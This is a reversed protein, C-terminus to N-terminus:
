DPYEIQILYQERMIQYQEEKITRRMDFTWEREVQDWIETLEPVYGDTRKIVKVLHIGYASEVPGQWTGSELEFIRSTFKTGFVAEVERQRKSELQDPVFTMGAEFQDPTISGEQLGKILQEAHDSEEPSLYIHRFSIIPDQMFKDPHRTLYERLQEESPYVIAYEDLVLEMLQRLRRKVAPDTKDLGRAVAERFFVEDMIYNDIQAQLEVKNPVRSWTKTFSEALLDVQGTAVIIKRNERDFYATIGTYLLYLLFGFLFFLFFPERLKNYFSKKSV